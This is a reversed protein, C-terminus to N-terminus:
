SDVPVLNNSPICSILKQFPTYLKLTDCHGILVLKHKARTIAVTLRRKDNLIERDKPKQHSAGDSRTCSYVIAEKDRGQFQDVTNVEIAALKPNSKIAQTLMSVQARYPAMVGINEVDVGSDVFTNLLELVLVQEFHNCCSSEGDTKAGNIDKLNGQATSTNVFVVSKNIDTSLSYSLWLKKYSMPSTVQLTANAIMENGCLLKGEYTLGNALDTIVQNMRYNLTLSVTSAESDLRAFLSESMGLKQAQHSKVVPPLQEPDGVLVFRRASFLPRLISPQLVQTSEDVLCVDFIRRQALSAHGAGLCTVGVIQQSTFVQDLEEPTRCEKTLYNESFPHLQPHIREDAGLRLFKLGEKKLRLLLNDVASHTHSTVLVSLGARVLLQVLAVMTATKGTGPLGKILLHSDARLTKVLANRQNKNLKSFISLCDQIINKEVRATFTPITRDVIIERLRAAPENNDLLCGLNTLNFVLVTDSESSDLHFTEHSYRDCLNRNSVVTVSSEDIGVINGREIALRTDTSILIYDGTSLGAERLDSALVETFSSLKRTFTHVFKGGSLENAKMLQLNVIAQKGREREIPSYRWIYRLKSSSLQDTSELLLLGAWHMVFDVHNETLHQTASASVSVMPHDKSLESLGNRKLYVSCLVGYPCKECASKFSIPEPLSPPVFHGSKEDIVPIRRRLYHALTNRLQILDKRENHSVSIEQMQGERLYLLLGSDVEMGMRSMMMTYLTVQGRHEASFSARGTKLELPMIKKNGHSDRVDVSVDVMGKIGLKPDWLTEEIDRIGVIKGNWETSAHKRGSNMPSNKSSSPLPAGLWSSTKGGKEKVPEIFKEVFAVIRPVFNSLEKQIQGVSMKASYLMQLCGKSSILQDALERIEVEHRKRQKLVMQFLEHIISGTVMVASDSDMGRFLSSLVSRRACFLSGVVTTGSILTDPHLVLFGHLDNLLWEGDVKKAQLGVSDGESVPCALWCGRVRCSAKLESGINKVNLVAEKFPIVITISIVECLKADHLDLSNISDENLNSMYSFIDDFDEHFVAHLDQLNDVVIDTKNQSESKVPSKADDCTSPHKRPSRRLPMVENEKGANKTQEPSKLPFDKAEETEKKEKVLALPPPHKRPSKRVPSLCHLAKSPSTKKASQKPPSTKCSPASGLVDKPAFQLAPYKVETTDLKGPSKCSKKAELKCTLKEDEHLIKKPSVSKLPPFLTKKHVSFPNKPRAFMKSDSEHPSLHELISKLVEDEEAKIPSLVIKSKHAKNSDKQPQISTKQKPSKLHHLSYCVKEPSHSKKGQLIISETKHPTTSQTRTKSKSVSLGNVLLLKKNNKIPSGKESASPSAATAGLSGEVKSDERKRKKSPTSSLSSSHDDHLNSKGRSTLPVDSPSRVNRSSTPTSDNKFNDRAAKEKSITSPTTFFSAISRQNPSPKATTKSRKM